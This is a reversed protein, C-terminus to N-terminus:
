ETNTGFASNLAMLVDALKLDAKGLSRLADEVNRKARRQENEVLCTWKERASRKESEDPHCFLEIETM